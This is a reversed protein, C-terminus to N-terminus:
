CRLPPRTPLACSVLDGTAPTFLQAPLIAPGFDLEEIIREHTEILVCKIRSKWPTFPSFIAGRTPRPAAHWVTATGSHGTMLSQVRDVPKVTIQSGPSPASHLMCAFLVLIASRGCIM